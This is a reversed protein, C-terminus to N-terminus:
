VLVAALSVVLTVILLLGSLILVPTDNHRIINEEPKQMEAEPKRRPNRRVMATLEEDEIRSRNERIMALVQADEAAQGKLPEARLYKPSYSSM